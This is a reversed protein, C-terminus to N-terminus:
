PLKVSSIKWGNSKRTLIIEISDEISGCKFDISVSAKDKGKLVTGTEWSYTREAEDPTDQEIQNILLKIIDDEELDELAEVTDAADGTVYPELGEIGGKEYANMIKLLAYEPTNLFFILGIVAVATIVAFISVSIAFAKKM